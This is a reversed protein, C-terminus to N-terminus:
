NSVLLKEVLVLEQEIMIQVLYLGNLQSISILNNTRDITQNIQEKGNISRIIVKANGSNEPLDITLHKNAPNPYVRVQTKIPEAETSTVLDCTGDDFGASPDFNIAKSNTCGVLLAQGSRKRLLMRKNLSPNLFTEELGNLWKVSISDIESIQGLGLHIRNSSSSLHTGATMLEKSRILQGNKYLFINSGIQNANGDEDVLRLEIFSGQDSDNRYFFVNGQSPNVPVVNTFLIDLDGDLDQDFTVVGRSRQSIDPEVFETDLTFKNGAENFYIANPEEPAVKLFDASGIYGNAIVLDDYGDSNLDAFISGWSISNDDNVVDHKIQYETEARIYGNEVSKFFGNTGINTVYFDKIGNNDVDGNAIGMGYFPHDLGYDKSREIFKKAEPDYEFLRNPVVWEGFDNAVLIDVYGDNNIDTSAVALGCGKSIVGFEEASEKFTFDGQNIYLYDQYCTHEFGVVDGEENKTAKPSEIYNTVYIDMLGDGNFDAIAPSISWASHIIGATSSIDKFHGDGLNQLIINSSQGDTTVFLDVFGDNNLDGAAAGITTTSRTAVTLEDLSARTFAGNKDNIFLWDQRVGGTLYIDEFGDNNFDFVAVGGGILRPDIHVHELGAEKAREIFQANITLSYFLMLWCGVIVGSKM